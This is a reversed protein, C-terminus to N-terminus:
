KTGAAKAAVIGAFLSLLVYKNSLHKAKVDPKSKIDVTSIQWGMHGTAALVGAYYVPHLGALLGTATWCAATVATVGGLWWKYDEGFRVATSMVGAKLDDDRDQFAYFTDTHVAHTIGGIWLALCSADITGTLMAYGALATTSYNLGLVIQPWNTFRKFLPYFCMLPILSFLAVQAVPPSFWMGVAIPTLNFLFFAAAPAFKVSGVVFPRNKCREVQRDYDSDMWDNIICGAGHLMASSQYFAALLLPNPFSTSALALGCWGPFGYYQTWIPTDYRALKMYPDVKAPLVARLATYNLTRWWPQMNSATIVLNKKM